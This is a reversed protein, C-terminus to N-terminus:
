EWEFRVLVDGADQAEQEQLFQERRTAIERETTEAETRRDSRRYANSLLKMAELTGPHSRGTTSKKAVASLLFSIGDDVHGQEIYVCGLWEETTGIHRENPELASVQQEHTGKLVDQAEQLRGQRLLNHGWYSQVHLTFQDRGGGAQTMALLADRFHRDAEELRGADSLLISLNCISNLNDRHHEGLLKRQRRLVDQLLVEAESFREQKWYNLALGVIAGLVHCHDSGLTMELGDAVSRQVDVAENYRGLKRLIDAISGKTHLTEPHKVGLTNGMLEATQKLLREAALDHNLAYYTYFPRCQKWPAM